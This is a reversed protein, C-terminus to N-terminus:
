QRLPLNAPPPDFAPRGTPAENGLARQSAPIPNVPGIWLQPQTYQALQDDATVLWLAGGNDFALGLALRQLVASATGQVGADASLDAPFAAVGADCAVWLNGASDFAVGRAGPLGPWVASPGPAVTGAWLGPRAFMAVQGSTGHAVWLNGSNDFALDVPGNPGADSADLLQTMPLPAAQTLSAQAFAVVLDDRNAVWLNGGVDFALAVPDPLFGADNDGFGFDAAGADALAATSFRLVRRLQPDVTWLAGQRDFALAAPLSSTPLAPGPGADGLLAAIPWAVISGADQTPVWLAQTGPRPGYTVTVNASGGAPVVAPSGSVVGDDILDVVFGPTRDSVASVSYTGPDIGTLSISSTVTRLFGLANSVLVSPALQAPASVQINLTGGPSVTVQAQAFLGASPLSATLTVVTVALVSAPPTYLTSAGVSTSLSGVQASLGWAVSGAANVLQASFLVPTGAANVVAIGPSVTLGPVGADDPGADPAPGPPPPCACLAVGLVACGLGARIM